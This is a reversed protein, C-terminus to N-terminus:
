WESLKHLEHHQEDCFVDIWDVHGLNRRPRCLGICALVPIAMHGLQVMTLASDMRRCLWSWRVQSILM